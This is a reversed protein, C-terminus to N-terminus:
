ICEMTRIYESFLAMAAEMAAAGEAAKREVDARLAELARGSRRSLPSLNPYNGLSYLTLFARTYM